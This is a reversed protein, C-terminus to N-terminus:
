NAQHIKTASLSVELSENKVIWHYLVPSLVISFVITGLIHNLTFPIQGILAEMFPQGYFIPGITLGTAADYLLTGLIGYRVFNTTNAERNKFFFYAGVGLAGYAAATILTWIGIGSTVADFAIIGLFGFSLGGLLGYGKAYPMVAALMPEFNPPRFPILRILFVAVWGIILKLLGTKFIIM